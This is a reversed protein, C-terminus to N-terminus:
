IMKGFLMELTQNVIMSITIQYFLALVKVLKLHQQVKLMNIQAVM